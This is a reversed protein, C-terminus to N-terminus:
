RSGRGIAGALIEEQFGAPARGNHAYMYLATRFISDTASMVLSLLILYGISLALVIGCLAMSTQALAIAGVIGAIGPLSFLFGIVGFGINSFIQEGWTKRLLGASTKLADIPGKKELVLVPVALFTTLTWAVGLMGAVIRGVLDSREEIMRLVMGVTGALVSWGLIQPLRAFAARLGDGVTPDHGEFRMAACAVVCTNFFVIVFFSCVYWLFAYVLWLVEQGKQLDGNKLFLDTAFIPAIFSALVFFSAIGSLLPFILLEKDKKIVDFSAGMLTWTYGIREFM